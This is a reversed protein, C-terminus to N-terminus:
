KPIKAKTEKRYNKKVIGKSEDLEKWNRMKTSYNCSWVAFCSLSFTNSIRLKVEFLYFNISNELYKEM